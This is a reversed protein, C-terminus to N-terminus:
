GATAKDAVYAADFNRIKRQELAELKVAIIFMRNPSIRYNKMEFKNLHGSRTSLNNPVLAMSRPKFVRSYPSIETDDEEQHDEGDDDADTQKPSVRISEM